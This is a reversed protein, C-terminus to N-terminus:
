ADIWDDTMRHRTLGVTEFEDVGPAAQVGMARLGSNIAMDERSAVQYGPERGAELDCTGIPGYFLRGERWGAAEQIGPGAWTEWFIYLVQRDASLREALTAIARKLMWAPKIPEDNSDTAGLHEVAEDTLPLLTLGATLPVTKLGDPIAATQPDGDFIIAEVLSAM